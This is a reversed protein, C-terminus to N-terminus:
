KEAGRLKKVFTELKEVTEEVEEMKNEEGFTVRLSSRALEPSLGTAMLVHSPNSSGSNCASGSSTYIGNASLLLLLTEGEIGSFSINANGPLRITPHGNLKVDPIKEFVKQIYVDRLKQLKQYYRDVNETSLEIAKGLGVIGPVNETGARKNNEQHGGHIIPEFNIGKRVYLAGVGKPGYFKHGSLSLADINQKKVDIAINGIAQVADTHFVIHHEKAIKAIEEIPEITGIENNAYMVSILITDNRIARKLEELNIMGYKDVNLYTIDFGEKELSLCTKLVAMHEIKSTIIHRGKRKNARAFGAIFLNDSESGGSTFYIEEPLAGLAKAVQERSHEVAKKSEQGITYISSANGYKQYFYPLMEKLVEQKTYTTAAHDLYISNM